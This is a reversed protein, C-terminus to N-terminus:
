TRRPGGYLYGGYEGETLLPSKLIDGLNKTERRARERM